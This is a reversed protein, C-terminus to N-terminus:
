YNKVEKLKISSGNNQYEIYVIYKNKKSIIIAPEKCDNM